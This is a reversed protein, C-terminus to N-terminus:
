IMVSSNEELEARTQIRTLLVTLKRERSRKVGLDITPDIEADVDQRTTNGGDLDSGGDVNLLFFFFM